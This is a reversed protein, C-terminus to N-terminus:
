KATTRNPLTRALLPLTMGRKMSCIWFPPGTVIVWGSIRRNKM